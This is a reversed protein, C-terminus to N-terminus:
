VGLTAGRRVTDALIMGSDGLTDVGRVFGDKFGMESGILIAGELLTGVSGM